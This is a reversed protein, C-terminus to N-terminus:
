EEVFLKKVLVDIEARRKETEHRDIMVQFKLVDGERAYEPLLKRPFNFTTRGEFEVVAWDGEFRDIICLRDLQDGM